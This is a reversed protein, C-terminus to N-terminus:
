IAKRVVAALGFLGTGVLLLKAADPVIPEPAPESRPSLIITAPAAAAVPRDTSPSLSLAFGAPVIVAAVIAALLVVKYRKRMVRM